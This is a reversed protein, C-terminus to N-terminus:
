ATLREREQQEQKVTESGYVSRIQEMSWAKRNRSKYWAPKWYWVQKKPNWYFGLEKLRDKYPRTNGWLYVFWGCIEIDVAEMEMKLIEVILDAYEPDFKYEKGKQEGIYKLASEYENLMEKFEKEKVKCGGNFDPHLKRALEKFQKKLSDVTSENDIKFYKFM